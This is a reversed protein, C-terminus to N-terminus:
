LEVKYSTTIYNIILKNAVDYLSKLTKPWYELVFIGGM